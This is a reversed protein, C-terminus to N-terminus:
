AALTGSGAGIRKAIFNVLVIGIVSTVGVKFLFPIIAGYFGEYSIATLLMFYITVRWVVRPQDEVLARYISRLIIGLILMGLPVGIVGFNRLLDGIPTIAFSNEAYNFYLEGYKRPESARPRDNWIIRPILFTELDRLINNDLGYSEEYPALQEYNSVVVAVSSLTDVREAFASFTSGALSGDKGDGIKDITNFVSETYEGADVRDESGKVARFTTGYIMGAVLAFVLLVTAGAIQKLKFERGALVYALTVFIFVQLLSGRNGAYLAKALSTVVLVGIVVYTKTDFQRRRFVVYWLLFSAELWLLTALFLIGDYTGIENGQQFGFLGYFISIVSNFIGLGLLVLGSLLYSSEPYDSKPFVRSVIEGIKKGIPLFYGIALGAFGLMILQVTFPLNTPADQINALFYPQSLGAALSFGGLVFAPYFYSFTAFVIPNGFSFKGQYWLVASPVILVVALATVWPVLFFYPFSTSIDSNLALLFVATLLVTVMIGFSILVPQSDRAAARSGVVRAQM